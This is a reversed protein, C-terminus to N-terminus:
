CALLRLAPASASICAAATSNGAVRWGAGLISGGDIGDQSQHSLIGASLSARPPPPFLYRRPKLSPFSPYASPTSRNSRGRRRLKTAEGTGLRGPGRATPDGPGGIQHSFIRAPSVLTREPIRLLLWVPVGHDQWAEWSINSTSGAGRM